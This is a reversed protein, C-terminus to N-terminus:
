PMNRLVSDINSHVEGSNFNAIYRLQENSLEKHRRISFIVLVRAVLAIAFCAFIWTGHANAGSAAWFGAHVIAALACLNFLDVGLTTLFGNFYIGTMRSKLSEDADVIRYFVDMLHRGSRAFGEQSPTIATKSSYIAILRDEINKNIDSWFNGLIWRRLNLTRYPFGILLCFIVLIWSEWGNFRKALESWELVPSMISLGLALAIAGPTILRLWHLTERSM